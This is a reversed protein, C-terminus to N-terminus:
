IEGRRVAPMVTLKQAALGSGAYFGGGPRRDYFRTLFPNLHPGVEGGERIVARPEHCGIDSSCPFKQHLSAFGGAIKEHKKAAPSKSSASGPREYPISCPWKSGEVVAKAAEATRSRARRSKRSSSSVGSAGSSKLRSAVSPTPTSEAVHGHGVHSDSLSRLPMMATPLTAQAPTATGPAAPIKTLPEVHKGERAERMLTGPGTWQIDLRDSRLHSMSRGCVDLNWHKYAEGYQQLERAARQQTSELLPVSM